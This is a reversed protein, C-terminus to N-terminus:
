NSAEQKMSLPFLTSTGYSGKCDAVSKAGPACVIEPMQYVSGDTCQAEGQNNIALKGAQIAANVAGRCSVGDGRVMQVEGKGDKIQYNLSLPKGTRQDQIGAGARWQGNLFDTRGQALAEPPLSLPNKAEVPATANGATANPEALAPDNVQAEPTVPEVGAQAPESGTEPAVPVAPDNLAAANEPAATAREEDSLTGIGTTSGSVVPATVGETTGVFRESSTVPLTAGNEAVPLHADPLAPQEVSFGPITVGPVCGRLLWLLLLALLLLPLLWCLWAPLIWWGRRKPPTVVPENIPPASRQPAAPTVPKPPRLCDLPDIRAQHRANVFGWFSIVPKGNVLWVHEPDPFQLTKELLKGFLQQEPQNSQAFDQSLQRLTAQTTELQALASQRESETAASWPIVDGPFPAYWDIREGHESIQPIALVDAAAGQKRLRLTERLQLASIHVAQGNEGMSQYKNLKDSCLFMEKM